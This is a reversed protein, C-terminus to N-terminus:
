SVLKYSDRLIFLFVDRILSLGKLQMSWVVVCFGVRGRLHQGKQPLVLIDRRTRKPPQCQLWRFQLFDNVRGSILCTDM